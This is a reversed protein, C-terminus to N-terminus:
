SKRKKEMKFHEKVIHDNTYRLNLCGRFKGSNKKAVPVFSSYTGTDQDLPDLVQEITGKVLYDDVTKQLADMHKMGVHYSEM